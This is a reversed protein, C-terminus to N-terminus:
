FGPPPTYGRLHRGLEVVMRGLPYKLGDLWALTGPSRPTMGLRRLVKNFMHVNAHRRTEDTYFNIGISIVVGDGPRVWHTDTRTMHPTTSPFYV